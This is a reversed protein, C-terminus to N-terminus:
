SLSDYISDRSSDGYSFVWTNKIWTTNIFKSYIFFFPNEAFSAGYINSQLKYSINDRDNIRSNKALYRPVITFYSINNRRFFEDYLNIYYIHHTYSNKACFDILFFEGRLTNIKM